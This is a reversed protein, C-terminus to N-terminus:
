EIEFEFQYRHGLDRPITLEVRYHGPVLYHRDFDAPPIPVLVFCDGYGPVFAWLGHGSPDRQICSGDFRESGEAVRGSTDSDIRYRFWPSDTFPVWHEFGFPNRFHFWIGLEDRYAVRASHMELTMEIGDGVLETADLRVPASM